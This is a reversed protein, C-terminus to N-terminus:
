SGSVARPKKPEVDLDVPVPPEGEWQELEVREGYFEWIARLAAMTPLALLVGPLGYLEGGALLGFIVLLPHLRLANAMVNPVVVHGEVQYIFVFLLAVWIVGIPDVVLAYIAPPVASLWPGIYPIVEMLATWLGFLLAYKDAGPVLGTVGLVWMGLGASAGIVTSLIIQGRVYGALAREIRRTLPLGGHPPFRRDVATELREFDLLMYVSIVVILILSFLGYIVTKAAGTAFNFIQRSYGTIDKAKVSDAWDTLSKNVKVKELHHTNLWLQLRDIDHEAGTRGTRDNAATFYDEVHTSASRVQDVVVVGIAVAAIGVVAAFILYVFAVALGRRLKLRQVDRVLPNLLFAIVAAVLFLFLAHGLTSALLYALILLVPLGALQIWRPIRIAPGRPAPPAM